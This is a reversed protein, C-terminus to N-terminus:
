RMVRDDDADGPVSVNRTALDVNGRPKGMSVERSYPQGVGKVLEADDASV